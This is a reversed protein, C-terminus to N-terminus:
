ARKGTEACCSHSKSSTEAPYSGTIEASLYRIDQGPKPGTRVWAGAGCVGTAGAYLVGRGRTIVWCRGGAASARRSQGTQDTSCRWASGVAYLQDTYHRPRRGYAWAGSGARAHARPPTRDLRQWGPLSLSVARPKPNGRRGGDPEYATGPGTRPGPGS